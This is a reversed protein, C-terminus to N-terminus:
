VGELTGVRKATIPDYIRVTKDDSLAVPRNTDFTWPILIDQIRDGGLTKVSQGTVPDWVRVTKDDSTSAFRSGDPSWELRDISGSHRDYSSSSPRHRITPDWIRVAGDGSGSALRTGDPSWAFSYVCSSNGEFVSILQNTDPDWIQVTKDFGGSALQSGDPSWAISCLHGTSEMSTPGSQDTARDWIWVTPISSGSCYALYNGDPSWVIPCFTRFTKKRGNAHNLKSVIQNTALDWVLVQEDFARSALHSGDPSWTIFSTGPGHENLSSLSQSTKPDWIEVAKDSASALKSGDPSWAISTVLKSCRKLTSVKQGTTPDWICVGDDNSASALRSGDPSWAISYIQSTALMIPAIHGTTPDWIRIADEESALALRSGDPSWAKPRVLTGWRTYIYDSYHSQGELTAIIHAKNPDWVQVTEDANFGVALKGGDPSWAIWDVFDNSHELTQLCANWHAEVLPSNLIWNEREEHFAARTLSQFPSFILSSSYTQLPSIEIGTRFHQIFRSADRAHEVLDDSQSMGDIIIELTRMAGIGDSLKGLLSLAELWNLYKRQLFTHLMEMDEELSHRYAKIRKCSDLHDVWYVCAYEVPALPNPNPAIIQDKTLGSLKLEFINRRLTKNIACLCRSFIAHHESDFGEPLIETFAEKILFDKASQHVFTVTDKRLTLFSRCVAIVESLAALDDIGDIRGVLLSGLEQLTVPRYITSITGLIQKCFDADESKRVQEMMRHYLADLGPPFESLKKPVRRPPTQALNKLVLSVWLFTGQSNLTLHRYVEDRIEPKYSKRRALLDVKQKIFLNVAESVSEENLELSVPAVQSAFDLCEIIENENRSSIVWKINKHTTSKEDILRLLDQCNHRCEDLADIVLYISKLSPDELIHTFISVLAHWANVDDFLSKGASDYRARVHHLLSRNQDVLMYILGRLVSTASNIREDTAQCFFFSIAAHDGHLRTLEEVIGCLLMTKGKGPDGRIWLVRNSESDRWQEFAPNSLVWRYSSELLGGGLSQLREKDYRPDTTRLDRLCPGDSALSEQPGIVITGENVGVQTGNNKGNQSINTTMM